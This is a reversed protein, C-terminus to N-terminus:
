LIKGDIFYKILNIIYNIEFDSLKEHFPLSITNISEFNSKPLYEKDHLAKYHIGCNVNNNKMYNLFSDRNKLNIRYLHNSTNKYGLKSNYLDRIEALRKIKNEYLNFNRLAIDCQISNMYMKYGPFKTKREWANKAFSMGNFSLEKLYNIKDLDNSVILGGDVSGVPKTPYFSFILLDQPNCEQNFQNKELKQASDVIKYDGFDHLIYSNGVWDVNDVFECTNGSTIIANLVVPTM